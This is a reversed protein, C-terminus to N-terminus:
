STNTRYKAKRYFMMEVIFILMLSIGTTATVKGLFYVFTGFNLWEILVLYFHHVFTLLVIYFSYPGWGMSKVSPEVFSQETSDQAIFISLIFPRIYSILTCPAAHLGPTGLFYDVSMGFLFGLILLWWRNISFPLWLIFLFYLYPTIFQHLPDVKSLVYVQIFLFLIFRIINKLISNM